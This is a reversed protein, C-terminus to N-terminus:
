NDPLTLDKSFLFPNGIVPFGQEIYRLIIQNETGQTNGYRYIGKKDGLAKEFAMGLCIGIDETTHHFDVDIDGHCVVNLDFKGHKAFLTLMHNLFASGTDVTSEGKGDINLVLKIDTETTKRIIEAQRM